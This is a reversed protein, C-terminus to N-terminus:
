AASRLANRHPSAESLDVDDGSRAFAIKRLPVTLGRKTVDGELEHGVM